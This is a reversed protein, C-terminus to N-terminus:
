RLSCCSLPGNTAALGIQPIQPTALFKLISWSSRPSGRLSAMQFPWRQCDQGRKLMKRRSLRPTLMGPRLSLLHQLDRLWTKPTNRESSHQIQWNCKFTRLLVYEIHYTHSSLFLRDVGEPSQFRAWLPKRPWSARFSSTAEHICILPTTQVCSVWCLNLCM